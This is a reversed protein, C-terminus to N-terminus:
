RRQQDRRGPWKRRRRSPSGTAAWTPSRWSRRPASRALTYPLRDVRGFTKRRSKPTGRVTCETCWSASGSKLIRIVWGRTETDRLFAEHRDTPAFNAINKILDPSFKVHMNESELARLLAARGRKAPSTSLM